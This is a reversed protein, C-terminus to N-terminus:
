PLFIRTKGKSLGGSPSKGTKECTAHCTRSRTKCAVLLVMKKFARGWSSQNREGTFSNWLSDEFIWQTWFLFNLFGRVKVQLDRYRLPIFNQARETIFKKLNTEDHESLIPPRGVTSRLCPNQYIRFISTKPKHLARSIQGFSFGREKLYLVRERESLLERFTSSGLEATLERQTHTMKTQSLHSMANWM